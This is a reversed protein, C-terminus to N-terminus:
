NINNQKQEIKHIFQENQELIQAELQRMQM